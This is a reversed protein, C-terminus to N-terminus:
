PMLRKVDSVKDIDSDYSYISEAEGVQVLACAYADVWDINYTTYNELAQLLLTKNARIVALGFISKFEEVVKVRPLKYFSTLTWIVESVLVDPLLLDRRPRKLLKEVAEAKQPDDNTFFRLLTNSDLVSGM